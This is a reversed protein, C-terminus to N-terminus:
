RVPDIRYLDGATTAVYLEGSSDTGFSTLELSTNLWQHAETASGHRYRFSRVWGGCYDGYLYRGDLEPMVRGRYVFGGIISCTGTDGHAVEVVPFTLGNPTCPGAYCHNGEYANWGFDKGRGTAVVDIEEYAAQGVDGIYLRGTPVDFSFRWPNRLGYSWIKNSGAKGVFPNDPPIAFPSASDVDLRLIKGLLVSTDQATAGGTGGDGTAIYLYGDPGFQIMGGNHEVAASHDIELVTVGSAPDIPWNGDDVFEQVVLDRDTQTSFVFFRGNSAYDPHFALGLVGEEYAQSVRGTLDLLPTPEIGTAGVEWIPGTQDVLFLRGDGPPSVAIGARHSGPLTAVKTLVIGRLCSGAQEFATCTDAGPGGHAVDSGRGGWLHDGSGGGSVDDHGRGGRLRDRNRGGTIVDAGKGGDIWDKGPGGHIEDDGSGGCITDDGGRGDIVDNGGLGMIVDNGSTGDIVDDGPTGPAITPALGHCSLAPPPEAAAAPLGAVLALIGLVAIRRM